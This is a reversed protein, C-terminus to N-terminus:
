RVERVNSAADLEKAIEQQWQQLNEGSVLQGSYALADAAVFIRRIADAGQPQRRRIEALTLAEAPVGWRDGLRDQVARRGAAVFAKTDGRRAADEMERLAQDVKRDTQKRRAWEPNEVTRRHRQHLLLGVFLGSLPLAQAAWFWPRTVLPELSATPSGLQLRIPILGDAETPGAGSGGDAPEPLRQAVAGGTLKVPIPKTELTVYKKRQTDFYSFSVPPIEKLGAHQPVIAQEFRKTGRYGYPDSGKFSETPPYTKWGTEDTLEPAPARDFNGRGQLIMKLAIPDGM